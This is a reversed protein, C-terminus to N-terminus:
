PSDTTRPHKSLPGSDSARTGHRAHKLRAHIVFKWRLRNKTTSTTQRCSARLSLSTFRDVRNSSTSWTLEGCPWCTFRGGRREINDWGNFGDYHRHAKTAKSKALMSTNALTALASNRSQLIFRHHHLHHFCVVLGPLTEKSGREQHPVLASMSPSPKTELPRTGNAHVTCQSRPLFVCTAAQEATSVLAIVVKLGASYM